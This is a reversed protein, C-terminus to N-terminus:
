ASGSFVGSDPSGASGGWSSRWQQGMFSFSITGSSSLPGQNPSPEMLQGGLQACAAEVTSRQPASGGADMVYFTHGCMNHAANTRVKARTITLGADRLVATLAALCGFSDVSQVHVKLGRPFRRQISAELMAALKEARRADWPFGYRPRVYYEQTAMGDCSKITAHYVDYDLDALTCVTDFLLKNRDKCSINVLWYGTHKCRVISVDPKSHKTSRFASSGADDGSSDQTLLCEAHLSSASDTPSGHSPLCASSSSLEALRTSAATAPRNSLQKDQSAGYRVDWAKCDEALMMQHLRRDHHVHGSVQDMTVIGLDGGMIDLMIQSLRQLKLRDAIPRNKELVSLVFAVRGKYTWVAASRVNCGNNMLLKTVEALKGARDPGSLEIVTSDPSVHMSDDLLAGSGHDASLMQNLAELKRSNEVKSGDAETIDFVDYFWSRDSSITASQVCLGLGLLYQVVEILTGPRNASDIRLVSCTPSSDNDVVVSPPDIRLALTAYEALDEGRRGERRGVEEAKWEQFSAVSTRRTGLGGWTYSM